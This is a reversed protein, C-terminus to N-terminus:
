TCRPVKALEYVTNAANYYPIKASLHSCIPHVDNNHAGLIARLLEASPKKTTIREATYRYRTESNGRPSAKEKKWNKGHWCFGDSVLSHNTHTLCSKGLAMKTAGAASCEYSEVKDPGGIKYAQGSAMWVQRVFRAADEFKEQATVGRNLFAIPLGHSLPRLQLLSNVCLAVRRNNMGNLSILGSLTLILQEFSSKPSRVKLVVLSSQCLNSHGHEACHFVSATRNAVGRGGHM